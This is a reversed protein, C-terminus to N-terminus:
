HRDYQRRRRASPSRPREDADLNIPRQLGKSLGSRITAWCQREGDGAALGDAVAAACLADDVVEVAHAVAFHREDPVVIGEAREAFPMLRKEVGDLPERRLDLM